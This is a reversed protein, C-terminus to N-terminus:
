AHHVRRKTSFLRKMWPKLVPYALIVAILVAQLLKLNNASFGLTIALGIIVQFLISGTIVAFLWRKFTVKGILVEGIIISALGVVIAGKGMDMNSTKYCQVFLAGALAVLGNSIALGLIIMKNTNIGQAKAMHQNCGTARVSMGLETGFFWYIALIALLVIGLSTLAKTLFMVLMLNDMGLGDVLLQQLPQYITSANRLYLSSRGMVLLNISYLGTMSIIGALIGPIKLKAHLFGTIFGAGMGGILSVILAVIPNSFFPINTQLLLAASIAGGFTLSGEVTLDAFDLVRYSIFVGLALLSWILGTELADKLLYVFDM